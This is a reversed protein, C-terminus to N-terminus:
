SICHRWFTPATKTPQCLQKHCNTIQNSQTQVPLPPHIGRESNYSSKSGSSGVEGLVSTAKGRCTSKHCCNPCQHCYKCFELSRCLFCRECIKNRHIKSLFTPNVGKKQPLGTVSLVNAVCSNVSLFVTESKNSLARHKEMVPSPNLVRRVPYM